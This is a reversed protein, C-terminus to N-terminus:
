AARRARRREKGVAYYYRLQREKTCVSCRRGTEFVDYPHGNKCHTRRMQKGIISIPSRFLNEKRTVTELHAPNVCHRVRCLHDLELGSPVPGNFLEWIWKHALAVRWKGRLSENFRAYGNLYLSGTWCWCGDDSVFVHKWFRILPDTAKYAM